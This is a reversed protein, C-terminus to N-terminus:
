YFSIIYIIVKRISEKELENLLGRGEPIKPNYFLQGHRQQLVRVAHRSIHKHKPGDMSDPPDECLIYVLDSPLGQRTLKVARNKIHKPVREYQPHRPHSHTLKGEIVYAKNNSLSSPLARKIHYDM